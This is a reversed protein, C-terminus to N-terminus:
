QQGFLAAYVADDESVAETPTAGPRLQEVPRTPPATAPQQQATAALLRALKEANATVEDPSGNGLLDFHEAPIGYTAAAKYRVAEARATEAARTAAELAEQKRQDESKSAEVLRQYDSLQQQQENTLRPQRALEKERERLQQITHWARAPDFDSGWPPAETSTAPTTPEQAPTSTIPAPETM